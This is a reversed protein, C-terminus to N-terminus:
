WSDIFDQMGHFRADSAEARRETAEKFFGYRESDLAVTMVWGRLQSSRTHFIRGGRNTSHAEVAGPLHLYPSLVYDGGSMAVDIAANSAVAEARAAGRLEDNYVEAAAEFEPLPIEKGRLNLLLDRALQEVSAGETWNVIDDIFGDIREESRRSRDALEPLVADIPELAPLGDVDIGNRELEAIYAEGDSRGSLFDRATRQDVAPTELM